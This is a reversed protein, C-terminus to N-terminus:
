ISLDRASSVLKEWYPLWLSPCNKPDFNQWKNLHDELMKKNLDSIKDVYLIPLDLNILTRAWSTNLMVPFSNRYLSEWVRHNEYGNGECCFVFKYRGFFDVYEDNPIYDRYVDFLDKRELADYVASYRNPNTPWMPPMLVKDKIQNSNYLIFSGPLGARALRMNELGIPITIKSPTNPMSNNQCLWLNVSKPLVRPEDFNEDRNGCIIVKAHLDSFHQDL